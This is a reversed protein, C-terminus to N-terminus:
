KVLNNIKVFRELIHRLASLQTDRNLGQGLYRRYSSDKDQQELLADFQPDSCQQYVGKARLVGVIRMVGYKDFDRCKRAKPKPMVVDMLVDNSFIEDWLEDILSRYRQTVLPSIRAVYARVNKKVQERSVKKRSEDVYLIGERAAAMLTEVDFDEPRVRRFQKM